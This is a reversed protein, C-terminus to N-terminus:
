KTCPSAVCSSDISGLFPSRAWCALGLLAFSTVGTVRRLGPLARPNSVHHLGTGNLCRAAGGNCLCRGGDAKSLAQWGKGDRPERPSNTSGLAAREM